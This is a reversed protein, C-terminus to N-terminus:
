IIHKQEKIKMYYNCPFDAAKRRLRLLYKQTDLSSTKSNLNCLTEWVRINFGKKILCILQKDDEQNHKQYIEGIFIDPKTYGEFYTKLKQSCLSCPSKKIWLETIDKKISTTDEMFLIEAHRRLSSLYVKGENTRLITVSKMKQALKAAEEETYLIDLHSSRRKKKSGRTIWNCYKLKTQLGNWIKVNLKTNCCCYYAIIFTIMVILLIGITDTRIRETIEEM